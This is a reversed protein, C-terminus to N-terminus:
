VSMRLAPLGARAPTLLQTDNKSATSSTRRLRGLILHEACEFREIGLQGAFVHLAFYTDHFAGGCNRTAMFAM